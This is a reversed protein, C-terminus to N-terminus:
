TLRRLEAKTQKIDNAGALDTRSVTMVKLSACPNFSRALVRSEPKCIVGRLSSKAIIWATLEIRASHVDLNTLQGVM